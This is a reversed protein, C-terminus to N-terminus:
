VAFVMALTLALTSAFALATRARPDAFHTGVFAAGAALGLSFGGVVVALMIQLLTHLVRSAQELRGRNAARLTGVLLRWRLWALIRLLKMARRSIRNRGALRARRDRP